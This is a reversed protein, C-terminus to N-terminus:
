VLVKPRPKNMRSGLECTIFIYLM